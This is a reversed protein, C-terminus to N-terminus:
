KICGELVRPGFNVNPMHTWESCSLEEEMVAQAVCFDFYLLGDNTVLNYMGKSTRTLIYLGMGNTWVQGPAFM